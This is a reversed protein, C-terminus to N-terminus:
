SSSTPHVTRSFSSGSRMPCGWRTWSSGLCTPGGPSPVGSPSTGPAPATPPSIGRRPTTRMWWISHAPSSISFPISRPPWSVATTGSRESNAAAAFTRSPSFEAASSGPSLPPISCRSTSSDMPAMAACCRPTATTSSSTGVTCFRTGDYSVAFVEEAVYASTDLQSPPLLGSDRPAADGPAYSMVSPPHVWGQVSFLVGAERPDTVPELANLGAALPLVERKSGDLAVRLMQSRVGLRERAYLGDKALAFTVIVPAGAPVIVRASKLDPHRLSLAVIKFHPAGGQTLLYLQDGHLRFDCVGDAVAAIKQWHTSSGTVQSLPAVYVTSPNQDMNHNAVAVAYPSDPALVIYTGQGDPVDVAPSVGRGFVVADGDGDAHSGLVHLYTRGNYLLMEPPTQPTPKAYRLYFFSRNDPRWSVISDSTWDISEPLMRGSAVELVHLVSRESGGTSVGLAVYRGDWSPEYFDLASHTHSAAGQTAPDFLLHATGALGDRYYLKPLLANPETQQYFYRQGRRTVSGVHTDASYLEHIRHLLPVRAPILDLLHHTYDAQAKMWSQVEPDALNEMYRYNDTVVTGFYDDSVARVPAAPPLESALAASGLLLTLLMTLSRLRRTSLHPM